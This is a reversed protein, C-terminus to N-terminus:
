DGMRPFPLYRAKSLDNISLLAELVQHCSPRNCLASAIAVHRSFINVTSSTFSTADAISNWVLFPVRVHDAHLNAAIEAEAVDGNALLKEVLVLVFSHASILTCRVFGLKGKNYLLEERTETAYEINQTEVIADVPCAEQCFGCYICQIFSFNRDAIPRSSLLM